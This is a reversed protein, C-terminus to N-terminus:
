NLNLVLFPRDSNIQKMLPFAVNYVPVGKATHGAYTGRHAHGHLAATASVHDIPDSLRSSGLFPFIEPPEGVVTDRIPAYHLVALKHRTRLRSLGSELQLADDVAVRVFDKVESEGFPALAHSDFGGCFGKVGAFGVTDIEHPQEDLMVIGANCFIRTIEEAHGGEYYHHGLVPVVPIRFSSLGDVLVEAEQPLGRNTLDGCLALIDAERRVHELLDRWERSTSEHVHVDGVAAVRVEPTSDSSM